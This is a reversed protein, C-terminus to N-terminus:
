AGAGQQDHVIQDTKAKAPKGPRQQLWAEWKAVAAQKEPLYAWRDYHKSSVDGATHNQLWDREQKTLGAEGALTKWTRRLDRGTFHEMKQWAAYKKLAGLVSGDPMPGGNVCPFLYGNADPRVSDLIKAAQRCVPLVHPLGNKTTNWILLRRKSDWQEARLHAIERVRQGTLALLGVVKRSKGRGMGSWRVLERFESSDLWRTGVNEAENDRPVADVPNSKLGWDRRLETRYDHTAQMGWRFAAGLYMRMKDAQVRAERQFIPRIVEVVDDPTVASAQKGAPITEQAIEFLREAQKRSPKDGMSALYGACLDGFTARTPVAAAAKTNTSAFAERAAAITMAPFTGLKSLKPRGGVTRMAYWTVSGPKVIAMLRGAGRPAPDTLRAETKKGAQVDRMAKRIAPETILQGM